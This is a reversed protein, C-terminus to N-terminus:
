RGIPDCIALRENFHASHLVLDISPDVSDPVVVEVLTVAGGLQSMQDSLEVMKRARGEASRLENHPLRLQSQRVTEIIIKIVKRRGNSKGSLRDHTQRFLLTLSM